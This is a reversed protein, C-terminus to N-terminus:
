DGYWVLNFQKRNDIKNEVCRKYPNRALALGRFHNNLDRILDEVVKAEMHLVKKDDEFLVLTFQKVNVMKDKVFRDYPNLEFYKETLTESYFKYWHLALEICGYIARLVLM